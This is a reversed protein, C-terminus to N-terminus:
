ANANTEDTKLKWWAEFGQETNTGPQNHWWYYFKVAIDKATDKKEEPPVQELINALMEKDSLVEITNTELYLNEECEKRIVAPIAISLLQYSASVGFLIRLMHLANNVHGISLNLGKAVETANMGNIFLHFVDSQRSTLSDIIAFVERDEKTTFKMTDM